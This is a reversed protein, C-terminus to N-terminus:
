IKKLNNEIENIKNITHSKFEKLTGIDGKIQFLVSVVM